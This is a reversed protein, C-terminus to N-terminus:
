APSLTIDAEHEAADKARPDPVHSLLTERPHSLERVYGLAM